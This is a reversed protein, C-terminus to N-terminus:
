SVYKVLTNCRRLVIIPQFMSEKSDGDREHLIQVAKETSKPQGDEKPLHVLVYDGVRLVEKIIVESM